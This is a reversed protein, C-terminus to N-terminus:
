VSTYCVLSIVSTSCPMRPARVALLPILTEPSSIADMLLARVTHSTFIHLSNFVNTLVPHCRLINITHLSCLSFIDLVAYM